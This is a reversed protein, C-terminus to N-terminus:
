FCKYVTFRNCKLSCERNCAFRSFFDSLGISYYSRLYPNITISGNTDIWFASYCNLVIKNTPPYLVTAKKVWDKRSYIQFRESIFDKAFMFFNDSKSVVTETADTPKIMDSQYYGILGYDTHFVFLLDNEFAINARLETGFFGYRESDFLMEVEKFGTQNQLVISLEHATEEAQQKKKELIRKHQMDQCSYAKTKSLHNPREMMLSKSKQLEQQTEEKEEQTHQAEQEISKELEPHYSREHEVTNFIKTKEEQKEKKHRRSFTKRTVTTQKPTTQTNGM